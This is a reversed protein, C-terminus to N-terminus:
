PLNHAAFVVIAVVGAMFLIGAFCNLIKTVQNFRGGLLELYIKKDDTQEVARRLARASTYFSFLICTVSLGWCIWAVLLFASGQVSRGTGPRIVVDKLFAMSGGLAGGSLAMIAKDYESQMQQELALLGKRYEFIQENFDPM